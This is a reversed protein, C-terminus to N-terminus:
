RFPVFDCYSCVSTTLPAGISHPQSQTAVNAHNMDSRWPTLQYQSEKLKSQLLSCIFLYFKSPVSEIDLKSPALEGVKCDLGKM